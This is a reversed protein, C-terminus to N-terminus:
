KNHCTRCVGSNSNGGVRRLFLGDNDAPDKTPEPGEPNGFTTSPDNNTQNKYHPDHCSACAVKGGDRLLNDITAATNIFGFVSWYNDSRGFTTSDGALLSKVNFMELSVLTTTTPRLSAIGATYAVQIPHDNTLDEGIVTRTKANVAARMAGNGVNDNELFAWKLDVGTQSTNSGAGPRNILADMQTVGDHCSLCALSSGTGGTGSPGTATGALTGSGGPVSYATFNGTTNRNWLPANDTMSHHPTHCFVCIQTTGFASQQTEGAKIIVRSDTRGADVTVASSQVAQYHEGYSSLNHRSFVIGGATMGSPDTASDVCSGEFENGTACRTTFDGIGVLNTQVAMSTGAFAVTMALAFAFYMIRKM